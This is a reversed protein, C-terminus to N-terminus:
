SVFAGGCAGCGSLTGRPCIVFSDPKDALAYLDIRCRSCLPCSFLVSADERRPRAAPPHAPEIAPNTPHLTHAPAGVSYLSSSTHNRVM